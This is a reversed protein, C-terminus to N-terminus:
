ESVRQLRGENLDRLKMSAELRRLAMMEPTLIELRPVEMVTSFDHLPLTEGIGRQDGQGLMCWSDGYLLSVRKSLQEFMSQERVSESINESMNRRGNEDAEQLGPFQFSYAPSDKVIQLLEFYSDAKAIVRNLLDSPNKFKKWKELCAGPFNIAQLVMEQEFDSRLVRNSTYRFLPELLLLFRATSEGDFAGRVFEWLVANLETDSRGKIVEDSLDDIKVRQFLVGGLRRVNDSKSFLCDAILGRLDQKGMESILYSFSRNRFREIITKPNKETIQILLENFSEPNHKLQNVLFGEVEKWLESDREDIPQIALIFSYALRMELLQRGDVQREQLHSIMKVVSRKANSSLGSSVYGSLWQLTSIVDDETVNGFLYRHVVAFAEDQEETSNGMASDLVLSIRDNPVRSRSFALSWSRLYCLRLKLKPSSKLSEDRKNVPAKFSKDELSKSRIAGLILAAVHLKLEHLGEEVYQDFVSLGATPFKCAYSEIARYFNGGALDDHVVNCIKLFWKSTFDSPIDVNLLFTQLALIYNWFLLEDNDLWYDLFEERRNPTLQRYAQSWLMGMLQYSSEVFELCHPVKSLVKYFSENDSVGHPLLVKLLKCAEKNNGAIYQIEEEIQDKFHSLKASIERSDKSQSLSHCLTQLNLPTKM